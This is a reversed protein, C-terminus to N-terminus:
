LIHKLREWEEVIRDIYANHETITFNPRYAQNLITESDYLGGKDGACVVHLEKQADTITETNKINKLDHWRNQYILYAEVDEVKNQPCEAFSYVIYKSKNTEDKLWTEENQNEDRNTHHDEIRSFVTSEKKEGSGGLGIYVTKEIYGYIHQLDYGVVHALYIGTSPIPNKDNLAKLEDFTYYGKFDLTIDEM